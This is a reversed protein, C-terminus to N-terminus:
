AAGAEPRGLLRRGNEYMIARVDGGPLGALAEEAFHRPSPAGEAHPYDSGMVLFDTTGIREALVAVKDEPYPVVFFYRKFIESPRSKLQGCPWYGKRALGRNKDLKALFDPLWMSGNESSLIRLNPFREFLNYYILSSFTQVLPIEAFVNMWSWASQYNRPPMIREGWMKMLPHLYYAEGVHYAVTVKAENLRAWVPDFYPDAPARGAAPGFPMVAFRAGERVLWETEAVAADLDDLMIMPVSFIRDRYSFGWEEALFRNYSNVVAYRAAVDEIVAPVSNHLGHYLVCAEVGFEDMKAVRRDRHQHDRQVPVFEFSEEGTKQAKLFEKLSGPKPIMLSGDSAARNHAEGLTVRNGGVFMLMHGDATPEFRVAYGDRWRAPLHRNWADADAEVLHSDADIIPGEYLM